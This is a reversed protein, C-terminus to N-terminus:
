TSNISGTKCGTSGQATEADTTQGTATVVVLVQNKPLKTSATSVAQMSLATASRQQNKQMIIQLSLFMACVRHVCDIPGRSYRRM